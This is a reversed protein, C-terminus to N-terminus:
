LPLQRVPRAAAAAFGAVLLVGLVVEHALVAAATLAMAAALLLAGPVGKPFSIRDPHRLNGGSLAAVCATILLLLTLVLGVQVFLGYDKKINAKTTKRLAM